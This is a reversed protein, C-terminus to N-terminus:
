EPLPANLHVRVIDVAVLLRTTHLGERGHAVAAGLGGRGVRLARQQQAPRRELQLAGCRVRRGGGGVVRGVQHRALRKGVIAAACQEVDALPLARRAQEGGERRAGCSVAVRRAAGKLSGDDIAPLQHLGHARRAPRPKAIPQVDEGPPVIGHRRCCRRRRSGRVGGRATRCLHCRRRARGERGNRRQQASHALM